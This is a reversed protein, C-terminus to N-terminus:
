KSTNWFGEGQGSVSQLKATVKGVAVKAKVCTVVRRKQKSVWFSIKGKRLFIGDFDAVPEIEISEVKGYDDVKIDDEDTINLGLDYLKGTVLLKHKRSALKVLDANRITYIFSFIEQTNSGIPVERIDMSIRDQFVAVNKKHNFTTLQSKHISGENIIWDHRVPLATAPDIFIETKDDVEYIHKYAKYTKAIMTIHFLERGNETVMETTSKSWAIPIGMWYIKYEMVEGPVFCNSYDTAKASHGIM